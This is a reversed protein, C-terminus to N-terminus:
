IKNRSQSHYTLALSICHRLEAEPIAKGQTFVLARKGEHDFLGPYRTTIDSILTTSCPVYLAVAGDLGRVAGLRLTTGIKDAVPRYAPQGWKLSESLPGVSQLSAAQDFILDRLYLLRDRVEAEHQDFVAQIAPDKIVTSM